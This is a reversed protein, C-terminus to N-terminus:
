WGFKFGMNLAFGSGNWSKSFSPSCLAAGFNFEVARLNLTLDLGNKWLRDHYGTMISAIFLNSYDFTAKVGAEMSFPKNYVPSVAFGIDPTVTFNFTKTKFPRWNIHSLLKFPRRIKETKDNGEVTDGDVDLFSDMDTDEGFLRIPKDSGISGKILLYDKMVGAFFPIGFLELGVDFDLISVKDKIGLVESLPYEAGLYFDMGPKATLNSGSNEGMAIPAFTILDYGLYLVTGDAINKYTYTIDSTLYFVPFFLSPKIKIKFKNYSFHVPIGAEFFVAGSIESIGDDDKEVESFTLMNGSLNIIGMADVKTSLGFGWGNKKNNYNFFLPEAGMGLNMKFGDKLDNLDLVLTEKFVDGISLFDNSFNGNVNYGIEFTRDEIQIGFACPVLFLSTLFLLFLKKM